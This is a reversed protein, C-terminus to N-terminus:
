KEFRVLPMCESKRCCMILHLVDDISTDTLPGELTAAEYYWGQLTSTIVFPLHRVSLDSHVYTIYYEGKDEKDYEGRLVYLYSRKFGRLMKEAKLGSIRGIWAPHNEISEKISEMYATSSQNLTTAM